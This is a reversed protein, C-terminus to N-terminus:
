KKVDKRALGIEIGCEAHSMPCNQKVSDNEQMKMSNKSYVVQKEYSLIKTKLGCRPSQPEM